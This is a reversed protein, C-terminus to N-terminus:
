LGPPGVLPGVLACANPAPASGRECKQQRMAAKSTLGCRAGLQGQESVRRRDARLGGVM